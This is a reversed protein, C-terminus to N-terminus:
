GATAGLGSAVSLFLIAAYSGVLGLLLGLGTGVDSLLKGM